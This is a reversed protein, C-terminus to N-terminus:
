GHLPETFLSAADTSLKQQADLIQSKLCFLAEIAAIYEDDSQFSTTADTQLLVFAANSIVAQSISSTPASARPSPMVKKDKKKDMESISASKMQCRGAAQAATGTGTSTRPM